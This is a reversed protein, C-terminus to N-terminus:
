ENLYLSLRTSVYLCLLLFMVVNFMVFYGPNKTLLMNALFLVNILTLVALPTSEKASLRLWDKEVYRM